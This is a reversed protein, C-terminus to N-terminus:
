QPDVNEFHLSLAVLFHLTSSGTCVHVTHFLGPYRCSEETTFSVDRLSKNPVM